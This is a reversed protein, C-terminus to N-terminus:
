QPQEGRQWRMFASRFEAETIAKTARKYYLSNRVPIKDTVTFLEGFNIGQVEAMQILEALSYTHCLWWEDRYNNMNVKALTAYANDCKICLAKQLAEITISRVVVVKNATPANMSVKPHKILESSVLASPIM